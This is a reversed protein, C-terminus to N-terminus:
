NKPKELSPKNIVKIEVYFGKEDKHALTIPTAFHSQSDRPKIVTYNLKAVETDEGWFYFKKNKELIHVTGFIEIDVEKAKFKQMLETSLLRIADGEISIKISGDAEPKWEKLSEITIVGIDKAELTIISTGEKKVIKEEKTQEEDVSLESLISKPKEPTHTGSLQLRFLYENTGSEDHIGARLKSVIVEHSLSNYDRHSSKTEDGDALAYHSNAFTIFGLLMCLKTM